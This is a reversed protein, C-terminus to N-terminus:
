RPVPDGSSTELTPPESPAHELPADVDFPPPEPQRPEGPDVPSPSAPDTPVPGVPAPESAAPESAAPEPEAPESPLGALTTPVAVEASAPAPVPAPPPPAPRLAGLDTGSFTEFSTRLADEPLEITRGMGFTAIFREIVVFLVVDPKEQELLDYHCSLSSVAVLRSFGRMLYPILFNAFSDRFLVCTPLDRRENEYVHVAGRAFNHNQFALKYTATPEATIMTEGRERTFRVGLDGVYPREKWVLEGEGVTELAIEPRLSDMLAQYAVFAGYANWHTDTKFFTPKVRSAARLAEVPYFTKNSLDGEVAALLQMAARQPSVHIFRPLKGDYVVHKEPIILFRMVSGHEACWTLRGELAAIWVDIQRRRLVLNATLQDLADHDRHFLFGDRGKLPVHQFRIRSDFPAVAEAERDNRMTRLKMATGYVLPQVSRLVRQFMGRLLLRNILRAM